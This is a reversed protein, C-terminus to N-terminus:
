KTITNKFNVNNVVGVSKSGLYVEVVNGFCVGKNVDHTYYDKIEDYTFTKIHTM